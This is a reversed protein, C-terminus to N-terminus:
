SEDEKVKVTVSEKKLPCDTHVKDNPLRIQEIKPNLRCYEKITWSWSNELRFPCEGCSKVEIVKSM